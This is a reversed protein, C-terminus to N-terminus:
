EAVKYYRYSNSVGDLAASNRFNEDAYPMLVIPVGDIEKVFEEQAFEGSLQMPSQSVYAPYERGLLPYLFTKNIFDAFTEDDELLGDIVVQYNQVTKKLDETWEVRQIM